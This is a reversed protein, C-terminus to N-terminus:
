IQAAYFQITVLADRLEECRSKMDGTLKKAPADDGMLSELVALGSEIASLSINIQETAKRDKKAM